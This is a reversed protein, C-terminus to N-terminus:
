RTPQLSSVGFRYTAWGRNRRLHPPYPSFAAEGLLYWDGWEGVM